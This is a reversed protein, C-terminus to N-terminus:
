RSLVITLGLEGVVSNLLNVVIVSVEHFEFFRDKSSHFVWSIYVFVNSVKLILSALPKPISVVLICMGEKERVVM